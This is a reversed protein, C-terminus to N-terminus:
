ALEIDDFRAKSLLGNVLSAEILLSRNFVNDIMIFFVLFELSRV